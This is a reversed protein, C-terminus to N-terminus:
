RGRQASLTAAIADRRAADVAPLDAGRDLLLRRAADLARERIDAPYRGALEEALAIVVYLDTPAEIGAAHLGGAREDSRVGVAADLATRVMDSCLGRASGYRLVSSGFYAM